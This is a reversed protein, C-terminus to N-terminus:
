LFTQYFSFIKQKYFLLTFGTPMRSESVKAQSLLFKQIKKLFYTSFNQYKKIGQEPISLVFKVSMHYLIAFLIVFFLFVFRDACIYVSASGTKKKPNQTRNEWGRKVEERNTTTIATTATNTIRGASWWYSLILLSYLLPLYM